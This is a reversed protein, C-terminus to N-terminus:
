GEGRRFAIGTEMGSGSGGDSWAAAVTVVYESCSSFFFVDMMM